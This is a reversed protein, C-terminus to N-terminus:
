GHTVPREMRKLWEVNEAHWKAEDARVEAEWKQKAIRNEHRFNRLWLYHRFLIFGVVVAAGILGGALVGTVTAVVESM